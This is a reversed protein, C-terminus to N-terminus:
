WKKLKKLVKDLASDLKSRTKPSDSLQKDSWIKGRLTVADDITKVSDIMKSYKDLLPKNVETSKTEWEWNREMAKRVTERAKESASMKNWFLHDIDEKTVNKSSSKTSSSKTTSPKAAEEAESILDEISQLPLKNEWKSKWAENILSDVTEEWFLSPQQKIKFENKELIDVVAQIQKESFWEEKLTNKYSEIIQWARWAYWEPTVRIPVQLDTWVWPNEWLTNYWPADPVEVTVYDELYSNRSAEWEWDVFDDFFSSPDIVEWEVKGGYVEKPWEWKRTLYEVLASEIQWKQEDPVEKMLNAFKKISGRLNKEFDTANSMPKKEWALFDAFKRFWWGLSTINWIMKGAEWIRADEPLQWKLKNLENVMDILRWRMHLNPSWRKDLTEFINSVWMENFEPVFDMQDRILYNLWERITEIDQKSVLLEKGEKWYRYLDFQRSLMRKFNLIDQATIAWAEYKKRIANIAKRYEPSSDKMMIEMKTIFENIPHNPEADWKFKWDISVDKWAWVDEEPWRNKDIVSALTNEKNEIDKVYEENLKFLDEYKKVKKLSKRELHRLAETIDRNESITKSNLIKNSKEDMKTFTKPDTTRDKLSTNWELPIMWWWGNPWDPWWRQGKIWALWDDLYRWLNNSADKVSQRINVEWTNPDRKTFVKAFVEWIWFYSVLEQTEDDLSKWLRDVISWEAPITDFLLRILNAWETFPVTWITLIDQAVPTNAWWAILWNILAPIWWFWWIETFAWLWNAGLKVVSNVLNQSGQYDELEEQNWMLDRTAQNLEEDTLSLWFDTYKDLAYEKIANLEKNNQKEKELDRWEFIPIWTWDWFTQAAKGVDYAMNEMAYEWQRLAQWWKRVPTWLTKLVSKIWSETQEEPETMYWWLKKYTETPDCTTDEDNTVYDFMISEARPYWAKYANIIDWDSIDSSYLDIDKYAPDASLFDRVGNAMQNQKISRTCEVSTWHSSANMSENYMQQNLRDSESISNAIKQQKADQVFKNFWETRTRLTPQWAIWKQETNTQNEPM